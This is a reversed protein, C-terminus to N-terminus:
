GVGVVVNECYGCEDDFYVLWYLLGCGDCEDCYGVVGCEICEFVKM